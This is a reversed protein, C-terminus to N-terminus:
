YGLQYSCFNGWIKFKALEFGNTGATSIYNLSSQVSFVVSEVKLRKKRNGPSVCVCVCVFIRSVWLVCM